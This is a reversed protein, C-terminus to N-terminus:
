LRGSLSGTRPDWRCLTGDYSASILFDGDPSLALGTIAADHAHWSILTQGGAVSGVSIRGERDGTVWLDGSSIRIGVAPPPAAMWRQLAPALAKEWGAGPSAPALHPDALDATASSGDLSLVGLHLGQPDFALGVIPQNGALTWKALIEGTSADFWMVEGERGGTAFSRGDASLTLATFGQWPGGFVGGVM